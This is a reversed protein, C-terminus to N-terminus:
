DYYHQQHAMRIGVEKEATKPFPLRGKNNTGGSVEKLLTRHPKPRNRKSEQNQILVYGPREAQSWRDEKDHETTVAQRQNKFM